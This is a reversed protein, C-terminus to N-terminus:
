ECATWARGRKLKRYNTKADRQWIVGAIAMLSVMMALVLGVILISRLTWVPLAEEKDMKTVMFWPSNPIAKLAALVDVGRYDKGQVIGETGLVAQAEPKDKQTLPIQLKLAASPNHRLNNLFLVSDGERRVMLTEATRTPRAPTQVLPYISQRADFQFVLAGVAVSGQAAKEFFPAVVDVHPPLGGPGFHLDSLVPRREQLATALSRMAMEHLSRVGNGLSLRVNGKIDVLMVDLCQYHERISRFRTAFKEALEPQPDTMWQRVAQIFFPSDMILGARRLLSSRWDTIQHAKLESIGQLRAEAQEQVLQQQERYFWTGGGILALIALGFAVILWRPVSNM